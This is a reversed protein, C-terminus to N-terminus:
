ELVKAAASAGWLGFAAGFWVAWAAVASIWVPWSERRISGVCAAAYAYFAIAGLVMSRGLTTVERPGDKIYALALSTLAISPAAGFLGAFTKPQFLDSGIAFVSVILGGVLFRVILDALM